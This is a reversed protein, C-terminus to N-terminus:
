RRMESAAAHSRTEGGGLLEATLVVGGFTAAVIV